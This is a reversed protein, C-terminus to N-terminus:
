KVFITKAEGNKMVINYGKGLTSRVKGDIGYIGDKKNVPVFSVNSIGTGDDKTLVISSYYAYGEKFNLNWSSDYETVAICVDHITITGDDDITVDLPNDQANMDRLSWYIKGAEIMNIEGCSLKAKHPNEADPTLELGGYNLYYLNFGFLQNVLYLNEDPYFTIEAAGSTPYDSHGYDYSITASTNYKGALEITPKPEEKQKTASLTSYWTLFEPEDKFGNTSTDFVAKAITFDGMTFNGESDFQLTISGTSLNADRLVWYEYNGDANEGLVKLASYDPDIDITGKTPDEKDPTFLIGGQNIGAVDLGMFETILYMDWAENYEIVINGSSPTAGSTQDMAITTTTTYTGAFDIKDEEKANLNKAIGTLYWQVSEQTPDEETAPTLKRYIALGSSMSLNQGAKMMRFSTVLEGSYLDTLYLTKADDIFANDLTFEIAQGDFKAPMTVKNYGPIQLEATYQTFTENTAAIKLDWELPMDSDHNYDYPGTGCTFHYDSSIDDVVVTEQEVMVMKVNTFKVVINAQQANWDDCTVLTFDPLTFTKTAADYSYVINSYKESQSGYYPNQGEANAMYLGHGWVDYNGNPNRIIIGDGDTKLKYIDQKGSAGALGKILGLYINQPDASITVECDNSFYESMSADKVDATATFHYKGFLETVSQIQASATTACLMVLLTILSYIKKM